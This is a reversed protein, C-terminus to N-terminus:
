WYPKDWAAVSPNTGRRRTQTVAVSTEGRRRHILCCCISLFHQAFALATAIGRQADSTPIILTKQFKFRTQLSNSLPKFASHALNTVNHSRNHSRPTVSHAGHATSRFPAVAEGIARSLRSKRSKRAFAANNPLAPSAKCDLIRRSHGVQFAPTVGGFLIPTPM